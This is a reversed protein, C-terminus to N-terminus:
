PARRLSQMFQDITFVTSGRSPYRPNTPSRHTACALTPGSPSLFASALVRVQVPTAGWTIKLGKRRGIEGGRSLCSLAILGVANLDSRTIRARLPRSRSHKANELSADSCLETM